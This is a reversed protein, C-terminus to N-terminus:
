SYAVSKSGCQGSPFKYKATTDKRVQGQRWGSNDLGDDLKKVWRAVNWMDGVTKIKLEGPDVEFKERLFKTLNQSNWEKNHFDFGTSGDSADEEGLDLDKGDAAGTRITATANHVSSKSAPQGKPELSSSNWFLQASFYDDVKTLPIQCGSEFRLAPPPQEDPTLSILAEAAGM